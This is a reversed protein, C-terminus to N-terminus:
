KTISAIVRQRVQDACPNVGWFAGHCGFEEFCNYRIQSSGRSCCNVIAWVCSSVRPTSQPAPPASTVPAFGPRRPPATPIRAPSDTVPPRRGTNSGWSPRQEQEPAVIPPLQNNPSEDPRPKDFVSFDADAPNSNHFLSNEEEGFRNNIDPLGPKGPQTRWYPLKGRFKPEKGSVPYRQHPRADAPLYSNAPVTYQYHVPQPVYYPQRYSTYYPNLQRRQRSHYKKPYKQTQEHKTPQMLEAVEFQKVDSNDESTIIPTEPLVDFLVPASQKDVPQAHHHRHRRHVRKVKTENTKSPDYNEDVFDEKYMIVPHDETLMGNVLQVHHFEINDADPPLAAIDSEDDGSPRSTIPAALLLLLNLLLAAVAINYRQM